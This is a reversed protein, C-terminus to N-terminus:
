VSYITPLTLHTYSVTTVKYTDKTTPNPNLKSQANVNFCFMFVIVVAIVNQYLNKMTEIQILDLNPLKISKFLYIFYRANLNICAM